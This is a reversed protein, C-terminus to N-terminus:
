EIWSHFSLSCYFLSIFFVFRSDVLKLIFNSRHLSLNGWRHFRVKEPHRQCLYQAYLEYDVSFPSSSDLDSEMLMKLSLDHLNHCNAGLLIDELIDKQILMHHSVFSFKFPFELAFLNELNRYYDFNYEDSPFLIQTCDRDIFPRKQLLVTDADLILINQERSELVAGLKLFQQLIWGARYPYKQEILEVIEGEIYHAENIIELHYGTLESSLNEVLFKCSEIDSKPVIIKISPIEYKTYLRLIARLSINLVDFDKAAAVYIVEFPM